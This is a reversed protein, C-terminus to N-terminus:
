PKWGVDTKIILHPKWRGESINAFLNDLTVRSTSAARLEKEKERREAAVQRSLKDDAVVMMEDGAQPVENFGSIEVPMSPGASKVREGRDNVLARVRGSAVGAIINDGVNLTGNQLLVTALPGQSRDLKAEIIIGRAQRDPNAHLLEAQLLIMEM